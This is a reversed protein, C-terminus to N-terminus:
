LGPRDPEGLRKARGAPPRDLKRQEAGDRGPEPPVAFLLGIFTYGHGDLRDPEFRRAVGERQAHRAIRHDSPVNAVPIDRHELVPRLRTGALNHRREDVPLVRELREHHLVAPREELRLIGPIGIENRRLFQDDLAHKAREDAPRFFSVLSCYGNQSGCIFPFSRLYPWLKKLSCTLQFNMFWSTLQM